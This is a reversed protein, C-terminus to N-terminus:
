GGAPAEGVAPAGRLAAREGEWADRLEVPVGGAALARTLAEEACPLDGEERCLAALRRWAWPDAPDAATADVLASRAGTVDGRLRRGEALLLLLSASRPAHRLAATAARVAEAGDEAVVARWGLLAEYRALPSVEPAVSEVPSPPPATVLRLATPRCGVLLLTGTLLAHGVRGVARSRPAGRRTTV